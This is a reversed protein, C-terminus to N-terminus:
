TDRGLRDMTENLRALLSIRGEETTIDGEVIADAVRVLHESPTSGVAVVAIIPKDLMIAYGLEVAFKVDPEGPVLSMVYTSEKMQPAVNERFHEAYIKWDPDDSWDDPTTM